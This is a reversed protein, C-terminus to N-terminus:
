SQGFPGRPRWGGFAVSIGAAAGIGTIAMVGISGLIWVAGNDEEQMATMLRRESPLLDRTSGFPGITGRPLGLTPKAAPAANPPAAKTTQQAPPLSPAHDAKPAVAPIVTHVSGPIWPVWPAQSSPPPLTTSREDPSSAIESPGQDRAPEMSVEHSSKAKGSAGSSPAPSPKAVPAKRPKGTHKGSQQPGKGPQEPGKAPKEQPREPKAQDKAKDDDKPVARGRGDAPAKSGPQPNGQSSSNQEDEGQDDAGQAPVRYPAQAGASRGLPRDKSDENENGGQAEEQEPEWQAHSREAAEDPQGPREPVFPGQRQSKAARSRHNPTTMPDPQPASDEPAEISAHPLEDGAPAAAATAVGLPLAICALAVGAATYRLRRM